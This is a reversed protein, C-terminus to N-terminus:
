NLRQSGRDGLYTSQTLRGITDKDGKAGVSRKEGDRYLSKRVRGLTQSHTEADAEMLEQIVNPALVLRTLPSPWNLSSIWQKQSDLSPEEGCVEQPPPNNGSSPKQGFRFHGMATGEASEEMGRRRGPLHSMNGNGSEKTQEHFRKWIGERTSTHSRWSGQKNSLREPDTSQLM